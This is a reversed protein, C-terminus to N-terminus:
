DLGVISRGSESRGHDGLWPKNQVILFEMGCHACKATSFLITTGPWSHQTQKHCHPCALEHIALDLHLDTV